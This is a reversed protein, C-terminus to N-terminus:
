KWPLLKQIEPQLKIHFAEQVRKQVLAMLAEVEWSSGGGLNVFFNAHKTSVAIGGVRVGKLGAQEILAGAYHPLPNKFISGCNHQQLPQTETRQEIYAQMKREIKRLSGKKLQFLAELVVWQRKQLKSARYGFHFSKASWLGIKGSPTLVKAEKVLASVEAEKVGANSYLAGGVTGPIGIAFEMGTLGEALALKALGALPAGCGARLGEGEVAVHNLERTCIVCGQFGEDDVLLNSGRGLFTFPISEQRLVQVLNVLKELEKPQVFFSAAGGIRLTTYPALSVEKQFPIGAKCLARNLLDAVRQM